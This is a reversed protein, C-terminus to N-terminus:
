EEDIDVAVASETTEVDGYDTLADILANVFDRDKRNKSLAFHSVSVTLAVSGGCELQVKYTDGLAPPDIPSDSPTDIKRRAARKRPSGKTASGSGGRTTPFHPSLQLGATRAAHLFFASAKRRSDGTYGFAEEISDLLQQATGIEASVAMQRPYHSEILKGLSAKRGNADWRAWDELLPQVGLQESIFGFFKLAGFLFAQDTGSKSGLLSRDIQPPLPKTLLDETFAWFTQFSGIPPKQSANNDDV